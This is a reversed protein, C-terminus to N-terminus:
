KFGELAEWGLISSLVMKFPLLHKTDSGGVELFQSSKSGQLPEDLGKLPIPSTKAAEETMGEYEHKNNKFTAQVLSHVQVSLKM